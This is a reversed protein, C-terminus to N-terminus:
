HNLITSLPMCSTVNVKIKNINMNKVKILLIMEQKCKVGFDM